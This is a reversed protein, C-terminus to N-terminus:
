DHPLLIAHRTGKRLTTSWSHQAGLVQVRTEINKLGLGRLQENPNFGIGDDTFLLGSWREGFHLGIYIHQARAHKLANQLCEQAIRFLHLQAHTSPMTNGYARVTISPMSGLPEVFDLLTAELGAEALLPPYLEHSLNRATQLARDVLAISDSKPREDDRLSLKAVTLTSALSDHLEGAIREREREQVAVNSALLEKQHAMAMAQQKERERAISRMALRAILVVVVALAAMALMAVFLWGIVPNEAAFLAM